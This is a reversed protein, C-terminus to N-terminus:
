RVSPTKLESYVRLLRRFLKSKTRLFRLFQRIIGSKSVSPSNQINKLVVKKDSDDGIIVVKVKAGGFWWAMETFTSLYTGLIQSTKSLLLLEILAEKTFESSSKDWGKKPYILIKDGFRAIFKKETEKSDTALFFKKSPNKALIKEMEAFFKDDTSVKGRGDLTYQFDTRRVHLGVVNKWNHLKIFNEVSETIKKHPTLKRTYKLFEKRLELPVRNYELDISEGNDAFPFKSFGKKIENPFLFFRWGTIIWNEDSNKQCDKFSDCVVANNSDLEKLPDKETMSIKLSFLESFDCGVMEITKPWYLLVKRKTKNAVRLSTILCKLRNSLGTISSSIIVKEV